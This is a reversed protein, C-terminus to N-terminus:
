VHTEGKEEDALSEARRKIGRLMKREMVLSAPEMAVMGIKAAPTPLGLAYTSTVGGKQVLMAGRRLDAM